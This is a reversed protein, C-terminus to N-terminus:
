KCKMLQRTTRRRAVHRLARRGVPLGSSSTMDRGKVKRSRAARATMDTAIAQPGHAASACDCTKGPQVGNAAFEAIVSVPSVAAFCPPLTDSFNSV